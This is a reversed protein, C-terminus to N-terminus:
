IFEEENISRIESAHEDWYLMRGCFECRIPNTGSRIEVVKQPPVITHCGGCSVQAPIYEINGKKDVKEEFVQRIPVIALGNKAKSVREYERIYRLSIFKVVAERNKMLKEQVDNTKENTKELQERRFKIENLKDKLTLDKGKIAEKLNEMEENLELIKYEATDINQRVTEIESTLADYEKNSTVLYLQDQYRKLHEKNDEIQGELDKTELIIEKERSRDNELERELNAINKELTEVIQPLDGKLEDIKLLENDIKQLNILSKLDKFM